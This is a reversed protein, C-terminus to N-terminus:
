WVRAIQRTKGQEIHLVVAGLEVPGTALQFPPLSSDDEGRYRAAFHLLPFGGPSGTPGTMGVDTVLATGLPLIHLKHVPEHTHTGLVAAAQGDIATAFIMKEWAADGHFDVIVTGRLDLTRWTEYVPLAREIVGRVSSLNAVTVPEGHVDLHVLGKGPVSEPLNYPRLVRPHKHVEQVEPGDWGHNGSTIVDVGADLLAHVIQLTMGFGEWPTAATIAANEANAVVLDANHERRLAPLRGVLYAVAVPGVLDGIFLVNM